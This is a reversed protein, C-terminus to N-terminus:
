DQRTQSSGEIAAQILPRNARIVAKTEEVYEERRESYRILGDALQLAKLPQGNERLRARMERLPAYARHTNLNNIYRRVSERVSPFAAVEHAAGESRQGPVMGCGPTYCWQGFLNNGEVAFRSRGWGSEAAAQVLALAVPVRDVRSKLQALSKEPEAGLWEVEYEAALGNLWRRELWSPAQGDEIRDALELLQERQEMVRANEAEVMPALYDFFAQKRSDVEGIGAFDPLSDADPWLMAVLAIAPLVAALAAGAVFDPFRIKM